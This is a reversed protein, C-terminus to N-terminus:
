LMPETPQNTTKTPQHRPHRIDLLPLCAHTGHGGSVLFLERPDCSFVQASRRVRSITQEMETFRIKLQYLQRIQIILSDADLKEASSSSSSQSFSSSSANHVSVPIESIETTDMMVTTTSAGAMTEPMM